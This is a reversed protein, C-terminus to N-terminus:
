LLLYVGTEKHPAALLNSYPPPPKSDEFSIQENQVSRLYQQIDPLNHYQLNNIYFLYNSYNAM